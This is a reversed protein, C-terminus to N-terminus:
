VKASVDAQHLACNRHRQEPYSTSFSHGVAQKFLSYSGTGLNVRSDTITVRATGNARVFFNNVDGARPGVTLWVFIQRRM